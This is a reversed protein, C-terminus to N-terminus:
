EQMPPKGLKQLKENLRKRREELRKPQVFVFDFLAELVDLLWDAEGPEVDVIQGTHTDKLPHAAFNGVNRIADVAKSLHAPIDPRSIFEEIEQALSRRNIGLEQHLITQLIRRSLAASAKPSINLVACAEAFDNRYPESFELEVPRITFAPYVVQESEISVLHPFESKSVSGRRLIVILEGCEPCQGVLIDAGREDSELDLFTSTEEWEINIATSCHPCKRM